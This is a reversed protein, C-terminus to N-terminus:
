LYISIFFIYYSVDPNLFIFILTNNWGGSKAMLLAFGIGITKTEVHFFRLICIIAYGSWSLLFAFVMLLVMTTVKRERKSIQDKKVNLNAAVKSHEKIKVIILAASSLICILPVAFGFSFIYYGYDFCAEDMFCPGCSIGAAEPVFAGFGFFPPFAFSGAIAWVLILAYKVVGALHISVLTPNWVMLCRQMALLTLTFLSAMGTLTMLFGNAICPSVGMKWGYSMAAFIDIPIGFTMMIFDSAVLNILILNFPTQLSSERFFSLLCAGNGLSGVFLSFALFLGAFVFFGPPLDPEEAFKYLAEVDLVHVVTDNPNASSTM